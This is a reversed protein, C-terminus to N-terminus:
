SLISLLDLRDKCSAGKLLADVANAKTDRSSTTKLVTNPNLPPNWLVFLKRGSPSGDNQILEMTPLNALEMAHERPNGSTVTCFVFSPDSGYVHSCLRRLRRLILATHYGFAGKYAHAENIVVFMDTPNGMKCLMSFAICQNTAGHEVAVKNALLDPIRQSELITRIRRLTWSFFVYIDFPLM